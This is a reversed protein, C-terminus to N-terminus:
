ARLLVTSSEPRSSLRRQPTGLTTCGLTASMRTKLLRKWRDWDSRPHLIGGTETAFLWDGETWFLGAADREGDQAAKHLKLLAVL